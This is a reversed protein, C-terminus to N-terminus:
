FIYHGFFHLQLFLITINSTIASLIENIEGWCSGKEAFM